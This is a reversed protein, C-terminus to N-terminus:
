TGRRGALYMYLFLSAAPVILLGWQEAASLEKTPAARGTRPAGECRAIVRDAKRVIREYDSRSLRRKNLAAKARSKANKAHAPDPIPYKRQEPLGFARDPLRERRRTTMKGYRSCTQGEYM